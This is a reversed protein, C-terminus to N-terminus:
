AELFSLFHFTMQRREKRRKERRKSHEFELAECSQNEQYICPVSSPIEDLPFPYQNIAYKLIGKRKRHPSEIIAVYNSL